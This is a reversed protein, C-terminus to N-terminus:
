RWVDPPATVISVLRSARAPAVALHFAADKDDGPRIGAAAGTNLGIHLRDGREAAIAPSRNSDQGRLIGFGDGLNLRHGDIHHRSLHVHHEIIYSNIADLHAHQVAVIDNFSHGIHDICLSRINGQDDIRYEDGLAAVPQQFFIGQLGERRTQNQAGRDNRRINGLGFNEASNGDVGAVIHHTGGFYHVILAHGGHQELAAMHGAIQQGVKQLSLVTRLQEFGLSNM